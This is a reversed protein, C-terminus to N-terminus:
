RKDRHMTFVCNIILNEFMARLSCCNNMKHLRAAWVESLTIEM